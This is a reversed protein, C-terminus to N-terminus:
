QNNGAADEDREIELDITPPKPGRRNWKEEATEDKDAHPGTAGCSMCSIRGTKSRFNIGTMWEVLMQGECFPCTKM